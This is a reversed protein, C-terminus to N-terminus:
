GKGIRKFLRLKAARIKSIYGSSYLLGTILVGLVLGLAVNVIAEYPQVNMLGALDIVMYVCMGIIGAIFATRIRKSFCEKEENSYDAVKLLAEETKSNMNESKREGDLLEEIEVDFYRAILILLDLDPLNVSNEWRSVSRSSVGLVEALQEQTLKKECRLEKIFKGIKQQDM